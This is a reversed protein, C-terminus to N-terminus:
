RYYNNNNKNAEAETIWTARKDSRKKVEEKVEEQFAGKCYGRKKHIYKLTHVTMSLNCDQCNVM